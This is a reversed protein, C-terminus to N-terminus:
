DKLKDWDEQSIPDPLDTRSSNNPKFGQKIRDKDNDWLILQYVLMGTILWAARVLVANEVSNKLNCIKTLNNM